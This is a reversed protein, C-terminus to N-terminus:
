IEREIAVLCIKGRGQLRERLAWLGIEGSVQRVACKRKVSPTDLKVINSICNLKKGLGIDGGM